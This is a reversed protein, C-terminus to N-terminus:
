NRGDLLLQKLAGDGDVSNKSLVPGAKLEAAAREAATKQSASSLASSM